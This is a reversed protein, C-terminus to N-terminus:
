ASYYTAQGFATIACPTTIKDQANGNPVGAFGVYGIFLMKRGSIGFTFQFALQTKLKSATQLAIQATDTPDWLLTLDAKIPNFAGPISAKQDTHILTVDVMDPEGGSIQIGSSSTISTGMTLKQCTGSSFASYLSTDIGTGGSVSELQFTTTTSSAVRYVTNNLISMGQVQLFVLDGNAYGHTTSTTVIGPAALTISSITVAAAVASQVAIAVNAMKSISM